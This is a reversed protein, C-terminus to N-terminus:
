PQIFKSTFSRASVQAHNSIAFRYPLAADEGAYDVGIRPTVIISSSPLIYDDEALYLNEGQLNLGSHATM